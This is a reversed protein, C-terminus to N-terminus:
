KKSIKFALFDVGSCDRLVIEKGLKVKEIPDSICEGVLDNDALDKDWVMFHLKDGDKMDVEGTTGWERYTSDKAVGTRMFPRESKYGNLYVDVYIDPQKGGGWTADWASGDEKKGKVNAKVVEVTYGVAKSDSAVPEAAATGTSPQATESSASASPETQPETAAVKTGDMSEVGLEVMFVQGFESDAGFLAVEGSAGSKEFLPAVVDGIMEDGGSEDADWVSVSCKDKADIMLEEYAGKWEAALRDEASSKSTTYEQSFGCNVHVYIDPLAQKADLAGVSGAVAKAAMAFKSGDITALQVMSGALERKAEAACPDWCLGDESLPLVYAKKVWLKYRSPNRDAPSLTPPEPFSDRSSKAEPELGEEASEDQQVDADGGVEGDASVKAKPKKSGCGAVAVGIGAAFAIAIATKRM